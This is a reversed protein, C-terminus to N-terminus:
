EGSSADAERAERAKNLVYLIQDMAALFADPDEKQISAFAQALSNRYVENRVIRDPTQHVDDFLLTSLRRWADDLAWTETPDIM